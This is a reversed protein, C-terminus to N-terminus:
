ASDALAARVLFRADTRCRAVCVACPPATESWLWVAQLWRGILRVGWVPNQLRRASLSDCGAAATLCPLV